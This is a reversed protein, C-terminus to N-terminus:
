GGGIFLRCYTHSSSSMPAMSGLFYISNSSLTSRLGRYFRMYLAAKTLPNGHKDVPPWAKTDDDGLESELEGTPAESAVDGAPEVAKPTAPLSDFSSPSAITPKRLSLVERVGDTQDSKDSGSGAGTSMDEQEAISINSGSRRSFDQSWDPNSWDFSSGWVHRDNRWYGHDWTRDSWWQEGRSSYYDKQSHGRSWRPDEEDHDPPYLEKVPDTPTIPPSAFANVKPPPTVLEPSSCTKSGEPVNDRGSGPQSTPHSQVPDAQTPAPVHAPPNKPLPVPTLSLATSKAAPQAPRPIENPSKGRVRLPVPPVPPVSKTVPTSPSKAVTLSTPPSPISKPKTNPPSPVVAENGGLDDVKRKDGQVSSVVARAKALFSNVLNPDMPPAPAAAKKPRGMRCLLPCGKVIKLWPHLLYTGTM